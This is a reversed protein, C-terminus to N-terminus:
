KVKIDSCTASCTLKNDPIDAGTGATTTITVGKLDYGFQCGYCAVVPLNWPVNEPQPYPQVIPEATIPQKMALIRDIKADMYALKQELRLVSDLLKQLLVKKM